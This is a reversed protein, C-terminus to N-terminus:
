RNPVEDPIDPNIVVSSTQPMSSPQVPAFMAAEFRSAVISVLLRVAAKDFFLDAM